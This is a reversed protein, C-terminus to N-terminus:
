PYLTFIFILTGKWFFNYCKYNDFVFSYLKHVCSSSSSCHSAHTLSHCCGSIAYTMCTMWQWSWLEVKAQQSFDTSFDYTKASYCIAFLHSINHYVEELMLWGLEIFFLSYKGELLLTIRVRVLYLNRETMWTVWNMIPNKSRKQHRAVESSM